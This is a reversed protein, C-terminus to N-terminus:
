NFKVSGYSSEVSVFSTGGKGRYGSYEASTYGEIQKKIEVGSINTNFSGYSVDVDFVFDPTDELDLSLSGYSIEIDIRSFSSKVNEIDVGGFKSELELRHNLQRLRFHSYASEVELEDAEDIEVKGNRDDIILTGAKGIEVYGCYSSKLTGSGIEEITASGYSVKIESGKGMLRKANISGYASVLELSGTHNGIYIPGFRNDLDLSLSQPMNVEYNIEFGSKNNNNSSKSINTEFTILSGSKKHDIDIKDLLDQATEENRGWTTIVIDVTLQNKTWTNIKVEGFRNEIVLKDNTSVTYQESKKKSM